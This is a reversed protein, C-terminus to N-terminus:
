VKVAKFILSGKFTNILLKMVLECIVWNTTPIAEDAGVYKM